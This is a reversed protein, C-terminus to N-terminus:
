KFLDQYKGNRSAARTFIRLLRIMCLAFAHEIRYGLDSGETALDERQASM